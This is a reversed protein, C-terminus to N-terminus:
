FRWGRGTCFRRLHHAGAEAILGDGILVDYARDGLPVHVTETMIQKELVDPRTLLAEIVRRAMDEISYEPRADM